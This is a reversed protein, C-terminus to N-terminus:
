LDYILGVQIRWVSALTDIKSTTQNTFGSYRYKGTAPDYAVKAVQSFYPWGVTEYRGWNKNLLNGVNIVDVLLRAKQSDSWPTPLQQMLRLDFHNYWASQFANKPAIKGRYKDLGTRKLFDNFQAEDITPDLIVDSGDGKPVYFLQHNYRALNQDEGFLQGLETSTGAFTYSYPQGSRAEFILGVSTALDGILAKSYEASAIFRHEREFSSIGTPARNPDRGVPTAAYNNAATSESGPAADEVHQWAYGGYLSLGFDFSKRVGGSIVSGFGRDTTTLLLDSGRTTPFAVVPTGGPGASGVSGTQYIPRGDPGTTTPTNRTPTTSAADVWGANRRLDKWMLASRVKSYTYTVNFGMSGVFPLDALYDAGFSAKYSSPIEFNPDLANTDGNGPKLQGKISDPINRGDFGAIPSTTPNPLNTAPDAPYNARYQVITTGDNTYNNSMWVAPTGGGYIGAGARLTLGEIPSYTAGVRPMLLGRGNMTENNTLGNGDGFYNKYREAFNSNAKIIDAANYMDYRLGVQANIDGLHLEDQVYASAIGYWWNAAGDDANNTVANGYTIGSPDRQEFADLGNGIASDGYTLIGHSASVFLNFISVREYELGGTILHNGLLYDGAAKFHLTTNNLENAHRYRDPGLYITGKNKPDCEYRNARANWYDLGGACTYIDAEMFDRGNLPNQQTNVRKYSAELETSLESTWSSNLRLSGAYLDEVKNYWYSTLYLSSGFPSTERIRNGSTVQFSGTVHHDQTAAWDLKAFAKYDAQTLSKSTVGADFDYVNKSIDQARQVDALKITAVENTAGSGAPGFSFPTSGNFGELSLFYHLKDKIVPGSVSFGATLESFEMKVPRTMTKDGAMTDNNYNTFLSAHFDNSGSKTIINVNGGLFRDYRVDFPSQEVVIQQIASMSIPSRQTPYGQANLGFDDDQRIGDVTVSNFRNNVGGISMAFTNNSDVYAEPMLKVVDKPDRSISAVEEIKSADFVARSSTSPAVATRTGVVVIEEVRTKMVINLEAFKGVNISMPPSKYPDFSSSEVTLLYPGGPPLSSFVFAGQANTMTSEVHGTKSQTLTVKAGSVPISAEDVVNGRLGGYIVQAAAWRPGVAVAAFLIAVWVKKAFSMM